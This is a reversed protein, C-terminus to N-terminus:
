TGLVAAVWPMLRRNQNRQTLVCAGGYVMLIFLWLLLSGAQGGWLAALRYPLAMDRSSHNAVYALQFDGTAFAILLVVIAFSTLLGVTLVAREAVRTWRPLQRAGAVSGAVLGLLAVPLAFRLAIAGLESV